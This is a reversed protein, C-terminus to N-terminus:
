GDYLTKNAITSSNESFTIISNYYTNFSYKQPFIRYLPKWSKLKAFLIAGVIVVGITMLLEANIGHWAYIHPTLESTSPFTPYISAMAPQLIYHGLVNPFFFIGM